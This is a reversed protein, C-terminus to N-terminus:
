TGDANFRALAFRGDLSGGVIVTKGDPQVAVANAHVQAGGFNAYAFGGNSFSPDLAGASFMRRDELREFVSSSRNMPVSRNRNLKRCPDRPTRLLGTRADCRNQRRLPFLGSQGATLQEGAAKGGAGFRANIAESSSPPLPASGTSDGPACTPPSM